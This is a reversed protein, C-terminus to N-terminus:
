ESECAARLQTSSLDLRFDPLREFLDAAGALTLDAISGLGHDAIRDAVLFRCGQSRIQGLAADRERPGGYFRADLIRVATDYGVVFVTGPMAAAKQDFRPLRSLAVPEDFDGLREALSLADLPPKDANQLPLECGVAFGLHAAAAQQMKRHAEHRPNFSGSLVARWGADAPSPLDDAAPHLAIPVIGSLVAVAAQPFAAATTTVMDGESLGFREAAPQPDRSFFAELLTLAAASVREDEEVRSRAGKALTITAASTGGLSVVALHARHDGRKPRDSALSATVGLGVPMREDDGDAGDHVARARIWAAAAMARATQAACYRDPRNGIAEDVAATAYPVSLELVTRSGGPVTLLDRVLSVGGGTILGCLAMPLDHIRRVADSSM